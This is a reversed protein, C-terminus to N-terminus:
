PSSSAEFKIRSRNCIESPWIDGSHLYYLYEFMPFVLIIATKNYANVVIETAKQLNEELIGDRKVYVDVKKNLIM